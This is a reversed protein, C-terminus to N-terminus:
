VNGLGPIQTCFFSDVIEVLIIILVTKQNTLKKYEQNSLFNCFIGICKMILNLAQTFKRPRFLAQTPFYTFFSWRHCWKQGILFFSFQFNELAILLSQRLLKCRLNWAQPIYLSQYFSPRFAKIKIAVRWTKYSCCKMGTRSRASNGFPWPLIYAERIPWTM